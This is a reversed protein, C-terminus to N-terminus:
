EKLWGLLTRNLTAVDYRTEVTRRANTSLTQRLTTAEPTPAMVQKLVNALTPVDHEPALLGDVGHTIMEGMGGHTSGVVPVGRAMAEKITLPLGEQDGNKATVCPHVFVDAAALLQAVRAQSVAGLFTVRPRLGLADTLAELEARQDGDGAITYTFALDDKLQALAQLALHVGKKETLRGVTLVRCGQPGLPQPLLHPFRQPSIGMVLVRTKEPPAGLALLRAKFHQSVALFSAGHQFLEAYVRPGQAQVVRSIDYGHFFTHIPGRLLGVQRLSLALLGGPGFHAVVADAALGQPGLTRLFGLLLPVQKGYRVVNLCRWFVRTFVLPSLVTGLLWIAAQWAHMAGPLAYRAKAWLQHRTIDDHEVATRGPASALVTVACGEDLLGAAQSTIFTESLMPFRGVKVMVIRFPQSAPQAM